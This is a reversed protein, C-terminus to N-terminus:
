SFHQFVDFRNSNESMQRRSSQRGKQQAEDESHVEKLRKNKRKRIAESKAKLEAFPLLAKREWDGPPLVISDDLFENIASLLEKRATAKYAINHFQQFYLQMLFAM